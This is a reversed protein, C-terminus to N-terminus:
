EVNVKFRSGKREIAYRKNGVPVNQLKFDPMDDIVPDNQIEGFRVAFGCAVRFINDLIFSHM